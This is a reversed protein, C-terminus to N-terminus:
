YMSRLAEEMRDAMEKLNEILDPSLPDIPVVVGGIAKAIIEAGRRNHNSLSLKPM